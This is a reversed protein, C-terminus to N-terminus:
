GSTPFCEHSCKPSQVGRGHRREGVERTDQGATRNRKKSDREVASDWVAPSGSFRSLTLNDPRDNNLEGSLAGSLCRRDVVGWPDTSRWSDEVRLLRLGYPREVFRRNTSDYISSEDLIRESPTRESLTAVVRPAVSTPLQPVEGLEEIIKHHLISGTIMPNDKTNVM